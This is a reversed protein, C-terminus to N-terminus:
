GSGQSKWAAAVNWFRGPAGLDACYTAVFACIAGDRPRLREAHGAAPAQAILLVAIMAALTTTSALSRRIM